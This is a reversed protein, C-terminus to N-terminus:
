QCQNEAQGAHHQQDHAHVNGAHHQNAARRTLPLQGDALGDTGVAPPQNLIQEEFGDPEREDAAPQACGHEEADRRPDRPPESRSDRGFEIEVRGSDRDGTAEAENHANDESEQGCKAQATGIENRRQFVVGCAAPPLDTSDM